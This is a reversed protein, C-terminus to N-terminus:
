ASVESDADARVEEAAQEQALLASQAEESSPDVATLATDLESPETPVESEEAGESYYGCRRGCASACPSNCFPNALIVNSSAYNGSNSVAYLYLGRNERLHRPIHVPVTTNTYMPVVFCDRCGSIRVSAYTEATNDSVITLSNPVNTYWTSGAIPQSITILAKASSFFGAVALAVAFFNM